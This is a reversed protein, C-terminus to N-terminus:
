KSCDTKASKDHFGNRFCIADIQKQGFWESSFFHKPLIVIKAFTIKLKEALIPKKPSVHLTVSSYRQM